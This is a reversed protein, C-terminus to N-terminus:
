VDREPSIIDAFLLGAVLAIATLVMGADIDIIRVQPLGGEREYVVLHGAFAEVADLKVSETGPIVVQWATAPDSTPVSVLQFNRAGKNTVLYFRDGRHTVDYEIGPM